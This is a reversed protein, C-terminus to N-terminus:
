RLVRVVAVVVGELHLDRVYIPELASNEPQLRIRGAERFFRKVTVEHEGTQENEIRAVVIQGNNADRQPRVVVMDGDHIGAEIMSDGRVHLAFADDGGAIEPGLVIHDEINEEALIPGGAAVRGVLPVSFSRMTAAAVPEDGVVEVTRSKTPDRRIHGKQELANLHNQVTSSSSLGVAQGIERVTPPYAHNRAHNRLFELIERQRPNLGEVM